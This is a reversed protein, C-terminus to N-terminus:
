PRGGRRYGSMYGNAFDKKTTSDYYNNYLMYNAQKGLRADRQGFGFGERFAKDRADASAVGPVPPAPAPFGPGGPIGPAGPPPAVCSVLTLGGALALLRTAAKM